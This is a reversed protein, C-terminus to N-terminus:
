GRSDRIKKAAAPDDTFLGDVGMDILKRIDDPENVTYCIVKFGNEHARVVQAKDLALYYPHWSFADLTRCAALGEKEEGFESLVGIAPPVKMLRLKELINRNFSSILVYDGANHRFVSDMVKEEIGEYSDCPQNADVKIEINMLVRKNVLDLVEDLTPLTETKFRPHFWGGADHKKLERLPKAFVPGAGDTTRDLRADHIVVPHGDQSLRVDFEIMDAGADIAAKFGALTNEPYKARYGRHGIILPKKFDYLVLTMANKFDDNLGTL